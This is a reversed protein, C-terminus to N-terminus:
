GNTVYLVDSSLGPNFGPIAPNDKNGSLAYYIPDDGTPTGIQWGQPYLLWQGFSHYNVQFRFDIRDFLGTIATTEAESAASPGRYTDSSQIASSGEGDGDQSIGDGNNDRLNKRWLRTDPSQFTYQYGDPNAILVFWLERTKLMNK